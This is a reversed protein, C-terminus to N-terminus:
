LVVSALPVLQGVLEDLTYRRSLDIPLVMGHSHDSALILLHEGACEFGMDAPQHGMLFHEVGWARSLKTYVEDTHRRGWVLNYAHGDVHLDQETPIRDLLTVDFSDIWRQSPLSHSCFLGNPCRVALALSRLFECMALRVDDADDAFIFEVGADFAEIVSVGDKLIGEGLLQSLEHNGLLLHVQSPFALKLAAVKGLMRISMDRNNIRPSGHIMEHLILHRHPDLHLGAVRLIRQYNLGQDHLDGTMFLRGEGPLDIVCGSRGPTTYNLEAARRFLDIIVAPDQLDLGMDPSPLPTPDVPPTMTKYSFATSAMVVMAM